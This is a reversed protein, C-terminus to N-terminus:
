WNVKSDPNNLIGVTTLLELVLILIAKYHDAIELPLVNGLVLISLVQSIVAMWLVPSQWKKQTM